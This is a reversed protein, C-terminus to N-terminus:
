LFILGDQTNNKSRIVIHTTPQQPRLLARSGFEYSPCLCMGVGPTTLDTNCARPHGLGLDPDTVDDGRSWDCSREETKALPLGQRGNVRSSYPIFSRTLCTDLVQGYIVRINVRHRRLKRKNITNTSTLILFWTTFLM